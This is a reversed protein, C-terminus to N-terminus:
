IIGPQAGIPQVTSLRTRHGPAEAGVKGEGKMAFPGLVRLLIINEFGPEKFSV